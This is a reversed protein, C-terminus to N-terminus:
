GARILSLGYITTPQVNPHAQGGSNTIQINVSGSGITTNVQVLSGSRNNPNIGLVNAGGAAINNSGPDVNSVPTFGGTQTGTLVPSNSNNGVLGNPIQGVTLTQTDAGGVALNTNGNLGGASYRGTGQNLTAGVTGRRDPLTTGGLVVALQPYTVGSFTTGDCNLYPPISCGSVWNPVSSGAWDMYSGVRGLNRYFMNGGDNYIDAAEGPPACIVLAGAGTTQLTITFASSGTCAHRITYGKRFSTPFTISVSGTLTSNFTINSCQFQAATLVVNSNNLSITAIGGAVLDVLTTNNNVPTDWTGVDDGRAPEELQINPTFTSAM